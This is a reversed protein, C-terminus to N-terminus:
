GLDWAELFGALGRARPTPKKLPERALEEWDDDNFTKINPEWLEGDEGLGQKEISQAPESVEGCEGGPSSQSQESAGPNTSTPSPPSGQVSSGPPQSLYRAFADDFQSRM